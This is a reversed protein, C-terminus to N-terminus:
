MFYERSLLIRAYFLSGPLTWKHDSLNWWFLLTEINHNEFRFHRFLRWPPLNQNSFLNNVSGSNWDSGQSRQLQAVHSVPHLCNLSRNGLHTHDLYTCDMRLEILFCVFWLTPRQTWVGASAVLVSWLFAKRPESLWASFDRAKRVAGM